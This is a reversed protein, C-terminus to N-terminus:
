GLINTRKWTINPASIANPLTFLPDCIASAVRFVNRACEAVKNLLRVGHVLLQKSDSLCLIVHFFLICSVYLAISFDEAMGRAVMM